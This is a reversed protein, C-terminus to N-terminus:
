LQRTCVFDGLAYSRAISDDVRVDIGVAPCTPLQGSFYLNLDGHWQEPRPHNLSNAPL